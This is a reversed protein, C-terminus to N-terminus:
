VQDSGGCVPKRTNSIVTGLIFTGFIGVLEESTFQALKAHIAAAEEATIVMEGRTDGQVVLPWKHEEVKSLILDVRCICVYNM